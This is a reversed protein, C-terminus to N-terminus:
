AWRGLVLRRFPLLPLIAAFYAHRRRAPTARRRRCYRTSAPPSIQRSIAEKQKRAFSPPQHGARAISVDSASSRRRRAAADAFRRRRTTNRIAWEVPRRADADFDGHRSPSVDSTFATLFM